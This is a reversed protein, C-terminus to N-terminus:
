PVFQFGLTALTGHSITMHSVAGYEGDALGQVWEV